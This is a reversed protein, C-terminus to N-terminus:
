PRTRLKLDPHRGSPDGVITPNFVVFAPESILRGKHQDMGQRMVPGGGQFRIPSCVGALWRQRAAGDPSSIIIADVNAAYIASAQSASGVRHVPPTQVGSAEPLRCRLFASDPESLHGCGATTTTQFPWTGTRSAHAQM